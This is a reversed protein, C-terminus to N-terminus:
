SNARFFAGTSRVVGILRNSCMTPSRRHLRRATCCKCQSRLSFPMGPWLMGEKPRIRQPAEKPRIRQPSTFYFHHLHPARWPPPHPNSPNSAMVHLYCIIKWVYAEDRQAHIARVVETPFHAIHAGQLAARVNLVCPSACVRGSCLMRSLSIVIPLKRQGLPNLRLLFFVPSKDAFNSIFKTM